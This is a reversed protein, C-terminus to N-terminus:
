DILGLSKKWTLVRTVAQNIQDETITGDQVAKIVAESQVVADSSLLMDNGSLVAKVAIEESTGYAKVGEMILDDTMIVGTFKLDNRLIAHVSPSLSSPNNSDVEEMVNHSVLVSDAGAEIGASFPLFDSQQFSQLSRHDHAVETHTDINNGYGPFHKLVSGENAEKMATVVTQAYISTQTADKGFARPYIFDNPDTSVDVVPAFNINLGLNQLFAAKDKTDATIADFGGSEYIDQPSQFPKSRLYLSARNVTGGEEDTGILMPIKSVEQYSQINAKVTDESKDEFDAGFLIYGGFQYDQILEVPAVEPVRVMFMQGVKEKLTMTSIMNVAADHKVATIVIKTVAVKQVDKKQEDLDGTYSIVAKNGTVAEDGELEVKSTDFIYTKNDGTKIEITSDAKDVIEGQINNIVERSKDDHGMSTAFYIAGGIFITLVILVVFIKKGKNSTKKRHKSVKHSM